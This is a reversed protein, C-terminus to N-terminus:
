VAGRLVELAEVPIFREHRGWYRAYAQAMEPTLDLRGKSAMEFHSLAELKTAMQDTIDVFHTPQYAIRSTATQYALVTAVAATASTAVRFAEQRAPHTDDMSPVYVLDPRLDAVAKKIVALRRSPNDLAAEDVVLPLGLLRCATKSAQLASGTPDMEDRYLPVVVVTRGPAVAQSLASGCGMEVDGALAGLALITGSSPSPEVEAGVLRSVAGLFAEKDLPKTLVKAAGADTAREHYSEETYGTTALIPLDQDMSHAIRIVEFGDTGPLNLDTIVLDWEQDHLLMVARDGDQTHTVQYGGAGGLFAKLLVAHDFADEVLLVRLSVGPDPTLL